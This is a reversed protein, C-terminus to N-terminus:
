GFKAKLREYEAREAQEAQRAADSANQAEREVYALGIKTAARLAEALTNADACAEESGPYAGPSSALARGYSTLSWNWGPLAAEFEDIAAALDGVFQASDM